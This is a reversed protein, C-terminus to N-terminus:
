LGWIWVQTHCSRHELVVIPNEIVSCIILIVHAHFYHFSYYNQATNKGFWIKLHM